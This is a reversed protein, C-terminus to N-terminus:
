AITHLICHGVGVLSEANEHANIKRLTPPCAGSADITNLAAAMHAREMISVHSGSETPILCQCSAMSVLLELKGPTDRM